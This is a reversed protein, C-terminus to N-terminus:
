RGQGEGTGQACARADGTCSFLVRSDTGDQIDLQLQSAKTESCCVSRPTCNKKKDHLGEDTLSFDPHAVRKIARTIFTVDTSLRRRTSCQAVRAYRQQEPTRVVKSIAHLRRQQFGAM